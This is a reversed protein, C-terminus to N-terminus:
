YFGRFLREWTPHLTKRTRDQQDRKTSGSVPLQFVRKQMGHERNPLLRNKLRRGKKGSSIPLEFVRRQVEHWSSPLSKKEKGEKRENSRVPLQFVRRQVKHWTTLSKEELEKSKKSSSACGLLEYGVPCLCMCIKGATLHSTFPGEGGNGCTTDADYADCPFVVPVWIDVLDEGERSSESFSAKNSQNNLIRNLAHFAAKKPQRRADTKPLNSGM